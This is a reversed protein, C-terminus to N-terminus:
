SCPGITRGPAPRSTANARQEGLLAGIQHRLKHNEERLTRNDDLLTELRQRLSTDTARESAPLAAPSAHQSAARLQQIEARTGDDRYLWSRSVGSAAAVAAFTIPQGAQDLRQLAAAARQRTDASRQAAAALLNARNDTPM